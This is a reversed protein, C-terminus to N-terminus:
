HSTKATNVVLPRRNRIKTELNVPNAGNFPFKCIKYESSDSEKRNRM